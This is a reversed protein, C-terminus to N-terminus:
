YSGETEGSRVLPLIEDEGLKVEKTNILTELQDATLSHQKVKNNEYVHFILDSMPERRSVSNSIDVEPENQPGRFNKKYQPRPHM